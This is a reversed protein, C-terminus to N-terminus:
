RLHKRIRGGSGHRSKATKQAKAASNELRKSHLKPNPAETETDDSEPTTRTRAHCKLDENFHRM